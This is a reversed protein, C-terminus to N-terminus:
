DKVGNTNPLIQSYLKVLEKRKKNIEKDMKRVQYFIYILLPIGFLTLINGVLVGWENLNM